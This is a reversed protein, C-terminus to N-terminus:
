GDGALIQMADCLADEDPVEAFFAKLVAGASVADEFHEKIGVVVETGLVQMPEDLLRIGGDAVGGDISRELQEGMAPQGELYIKLVAHRTVLVAQIAARMVVHDAGRATVGNFEERGLDFFHLAAYSVLKVELGQAVTELDQSGALGALSLVWVCALGSESNRRSQLSSGCGWSDTMEWLNTMGWLNTMSLRLRLVRKEHGCGVPTIAPVDEEADPAGDHGQTLDACDETGREFRRRPGRYIM